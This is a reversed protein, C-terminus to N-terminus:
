GLLIFTQEIESRGIFNYLLRMNYDMLENVLVFDDIWVNEYSKARYHSINDMFSRISVINKKDTHCDFLKNKYISKLVIILDSPGCRRRIYETKGVQRGIDLRITCYEQIYQYPDM